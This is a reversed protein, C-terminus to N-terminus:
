TTELGDVCSAITSAMVEVHGIIAIINRNTVTAPVKKQNSTLITKKYASAQGSFHWVDVISRKAFITLLQFGNVM